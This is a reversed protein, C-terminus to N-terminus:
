DFHFFHSDHDSPKMLQDTDVTNLVRLFGTNAPCPNSKVSILWYIVFGDLHYARGSFVLVLMYILNKLNDIVWQIQYACCHASTLSTRLRQPAYMDNHQNKDQGM